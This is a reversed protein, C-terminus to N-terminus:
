PTERDSCERSLKAGDDSMSARDNTASGWDSYKKATGDIAEIANIGSAGQEADGAIAWTGMGVYPADPLKMAVSGSVFYIRQFANSRVMRDADIIGPVGGIKIGSEIAERTGGPVRLCRSADFPEGRDRTAVAIAGLVLVVVAVGILWRQNRRDM